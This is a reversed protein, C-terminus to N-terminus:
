RAAPILETAMRLGSPIGKRPEVWLCAHGEFTMGSGLTEICRVLVVV